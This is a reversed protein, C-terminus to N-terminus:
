AGPGEEPEVVWIADADENIEPGYRSKHWEIHLLEGAGACARLVAGQDPQFTRYVEGNVARAMTLVWAGQSNTGKKEETSEIHVEVVGGTIEAAQDPAPQEPQPTPKAPQTPKGAASARRPLAVKPAEPSDAQDMEVDAYLGSLEQPFAKRLALAEACKALMGPSDARWRKVPAGDSNRTQVYGTYHAIGTFPHARGRRYVLVRAAHPPREEMWVDSWNGEEDCWEPGQQGDVEGTREAILRYGDIGTQICLKGERKVAHIQRAFPDLGTKSAVWLFMKLEDDTGEPFITKKVLEVQERDFKTAIHGASPEAVAPLSEKTETM